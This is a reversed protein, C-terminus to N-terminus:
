FETGNPSLLSTATCKGPFRPEARKALGGKGQCATPPISPPGNVWCDKARVELNGPVLIGLVFVSTLVVLIINKKKM